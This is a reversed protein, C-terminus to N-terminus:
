RTDKTEQTSNDPPKEGVVIKFYEIRGTEFRVNDRSSYLLKGHEDEVMVYLEPLGDSIGAFDSEHYIMDFNGSEDTTTDGLLDSFHLDRDFVRVRVGSVPNGEQNLVQGYVMWDTPGMKLLPAERAAMARLSLGIKPAATSAQNLAAVKENNEGLSEKLRTEAVILHSGRNLQLMAFHRQMVVSWTNAKKDLENVMGEQTRQLLECDEEKVMMLNNECILHNNYGRAWICHTAQNGLLSVDDFNLIAVSCSVSNGQVELTVQNNHFLIRGDLPTADIEGSNEQNIHSVFLNSLKLIEGGVNLISVAGGLMDPSVPQAYLGHSVLTNGDVSISGDYVSLILAQGRSCVVVNDHFLVSGKVFAVIGAQYYGVNKEATVSSNNRVTNHSVELGEGNTVFIGCAPVNSYITSNLAIYNDHIRVHSVEGLVIGGGALTHFFSNPLKQACDVIRNDAVTLDEMDVLASTDNNDKTVTSIGSNNM